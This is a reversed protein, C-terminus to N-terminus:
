SSSTESIWARADAAQETTFVRLQGPMLFRFVNMTIRIWEVDTVVAMREWRSLHGIGLKFDKWSASADIGSFEPGLEYYLRVKDHQKLSEEVLPVVVDRYDAASVRGKATIAIVGEPFGEIVEIM